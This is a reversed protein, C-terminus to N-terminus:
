VLGAVTGGVLKSVIANKISRTFDSEAKMNEIQVSLMQKGLAAFEGDGGGGGSGVAQLLFPLLQAMSGGGGTPASGVAPGPQPHALVSTFAKQIKEETPMNAVLWNVKQEQLDLYPILGPVMQNVVAIQAPDIKSLIENLSQPISEQTPKESVAKDSGKKELAEGEKSTNEAVKATNKKAQSM